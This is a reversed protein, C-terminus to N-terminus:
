KKKILEIIEKILREQNKHYSEDKEEWKGLGETAMKLAKTNKKIANVLDVFVKELM